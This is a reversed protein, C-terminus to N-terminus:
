TADSRHSYKRREHDASRPLEVPPEELLGRRHLEDARSWRKRIAATAQSIEAPSPCTTLSKTADNSKEAKRKDRAAPGDREERYGYAIALIAKARERRGLTVFPELELWLSDFSMTM